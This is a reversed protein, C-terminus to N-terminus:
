NHQVDKWTSIQERYRKLSIDTDKAWKWIPNKKENKLNTLEKCIKSILRKNSINNAFIKWDIARRKTRKAPDKASGFIKM